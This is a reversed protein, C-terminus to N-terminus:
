VSPLETLCPKPYFATSLQRFYNRYLAAEEVQQVPDAAPLQCSCVSYASASKDSMQVGSQIILKLLYLNFIEWRKM